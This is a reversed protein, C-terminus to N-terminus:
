SAGDYAFRMWAFNQTGGSPTRHVERDEELLRFGHGLVEALAAGDYQMTQLGSCRDPGDPAFAGIVIQADRHLARRLVDVYRERDAPDTLFHFVARDHWLHYRQPPDFETVDAEVWTVRAADAALLTRAQQLAAGSIDLISCDRFGARLLAATLPSTGGGVDIVAASTDFGTAAIMRLSVAPDEQFWSVSDMSKKQYVNEWHRRREDM